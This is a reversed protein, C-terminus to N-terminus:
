KSYEECFENMAMNMLSITRYFVAKFHSIDQLFMESRITIYSDYLRVKVTKYNNVEMTVLMAKSMDYGDDGMSLYRTMSLYFPSNDKEDIRVFHVDGEKKFKVDGDEDLSPAFGEERLFDLVDQKLKEQSMFILFNFILVITMKVECVYLM